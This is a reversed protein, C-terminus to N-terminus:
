GTESSGRMEEAVSRGREHIERRRADVGDEGSQPGAPVPPEVVDVPTEAAEFEEREGLLGRSEELRRRLEEARPDPSHVPEPIAPPKRRRVVRMGM